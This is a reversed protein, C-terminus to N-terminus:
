WVGSTPADRLGLAGTAAAMAESQSTATTVAVM